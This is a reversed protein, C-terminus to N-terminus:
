CWGEEGAPRRCGRSGGRAGVCWGGAREGVGELDVVRDPPGGCLADGGGRALVADQVRQVVRPEGEGGRAIPRPIPLPQLLHPPPYVRIPRPRPLRRHIRIHLPRHPHQLRTRSIIIHSAHHM